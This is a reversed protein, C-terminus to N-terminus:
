LWAEPVRDGWQDIVDVFEDDPNLCEIPNVSLGDPAGETVMEALEAAKVAILNLYKGGRRDGGTAVADKWQDILDLLCEAENAIPHIM